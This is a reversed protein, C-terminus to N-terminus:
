DEIVEFSDAINGIQLAPRPDTSPAVSPKGENQTIFEHLKAWKKPEKKFLKEAKSVSIVEQTYIDGEIEALELMADEAATEDIWKRNGRKGEVLKYGPVDRGAFLEAETKARVAKIFDEMLGTNQMFWSLKQNDITELKSLANNFKAPVKATLDVFDDAAVALVHKALAPCIAAARCFRCQKEGPTLDQEPIFKTEGKLVRLIFDARFKVEDLFTELQERSFEWESVHHLRPQNIIFVFKEFNYILGFQRLAAGLYIMGQENNQADIRNGMGFKLDIGILTKGDASIIFVDGTGTAGKEGTIDEIFVTQEVMLTHGQAREKVFNVYEFIASDIEGDVTKDNLLAAAIAHAKTGEAAYVSSTNPFTRGLVVFGPCRMWSPAGSPRLDVTPLSSEM